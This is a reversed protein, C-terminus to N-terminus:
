SSLWRALREVESYEEHDGRRAVLFVAVSFQHQDLEIGGPPDYDVGGRLGAELLLTEAETNEFMPRIRLGFTAPESLFEERSLRQTLATKGVGSPGLLAVKPSDNEPSNSPPM